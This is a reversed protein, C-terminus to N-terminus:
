RMCDTVVGNEDTSTLTTPTIAVTSTSSQNVVMQDIMPQIMALPVEQGGMSGTKVTMKTITEKLKGDDQFAWSAEGDATINIAMGSQNVGVKADMTAKGGDMYNVKAETTVGESAAKCSWPGIIMEAPTKAAPASACAGLVVFGSAAYAFRKM